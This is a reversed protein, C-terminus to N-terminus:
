LFLICILHMNSTLYASKKDRSILVTKMWFQSVTILGQFIWFLVKKRARKEKTNQYRSVWLCILWTISCNLKNSLTNPVSWTSIRERQFPKVTENESNRFLTQYHPIFCYKKKQVTDKQSTWSQTCGMTRAIFAFLRGRFAASRFAVNALNIITFAYILPKQVNIFALFKM